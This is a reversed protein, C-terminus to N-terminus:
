KLDVTLAAEGKMVAIKKGPNEPTKLALYSSWSNTRSMGGMNLALM